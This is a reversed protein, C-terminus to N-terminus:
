STASSWPRKVKLRSVSWSPVDCRFCLHAFTLIFQNSRVPDAADGEGLRCQLRTWLM